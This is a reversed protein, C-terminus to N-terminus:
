GVTEAIVPNVLTGVGGISLIVEDGPELHEPPKRGFGVGSPSGTLLMDGPELTMVSTLHTILQAVGFIMDSTSTEQKTAGNVTLKITLQQPDDVFRAPTILPGAPTFGDFGKHLTWDMGVGPVQADMWDRASVDNVPCYGAVATLADALALHRVRHGIVVGLEGEWDIWTVQRPIVIPQQHGIVSTTAPKLLTFPHTLADPDGGMETVHARYNAGCIVIKRPYVVPPLWSLAEPDLPPADDSAGALETLREQWVAWSELIARVSADGVSDIGAASLVTDLDFLV